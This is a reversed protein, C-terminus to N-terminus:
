ARVLEILLRYGFSTGGWWMGWRAYLLLSLVTGAFWINPLPDNERWAVVAGAASFLFIPSFVLLGRSPQLCDPRRLARQGSFWPRYDQRGRPHRGSLRRLLDRPSPRFSPWGLFALSRRLCWPAVRLRWRSRSAPEHAPQRGGSRSAIREVGEKEGSSLLALAASLFFLSPAHPWMGRSAVSWAGTAFAFCSAVGLSEGAIRRLRPAARLVSSPPAPACCARPSSRSPSVIDMPVAGLRERGRLGSRQASRGIPYASVIRGKVRRYPYPLDGDRHVRRLRSRRRRLVSIPLLEATRTAAASM